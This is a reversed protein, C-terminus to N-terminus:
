AIDTIVAISEPETIVPLSTQWGEAEIRPPKNDFAELRAVRGGTAQGAARGIATYGAVNPLFREEEALDSSIMETRGTAGIFVMVDDPMFRKIGATEDQYWGDYTEIPPVDDATLAANIQAVSAFGPMIDSASLVRVNGVRAKVMANRQLIRLVKTSTIVRATRYGKTLLLDTMAFIDDFPDYEDDSWTGGASARHGSPNVYEVVEYYGNDGVREVQSNIIADWRMKETLQALAQVISVDFWNILAAAAEMTQNAALLEILADYDRATFEAGIDQEGLEVLFTGVMQGQNRIQVPSYRTGHAAIVTRYRINAETYENRNVVREPLITAGLLPERSPGFQAFPNGILAALTGDAELDQILALLDRNM